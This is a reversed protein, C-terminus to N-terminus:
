GRTKERENNRIGTQRKKCCTKSRWGKRMETSCIKGNNGTVIGLAWTAQNKLTVYPLSYVHRIVEHESESLNFNIIHKPMMLFDTQSRHIVRKGYVECAIEDLTAPSKEMVFAKAKTLLGKFPKGYDVLRRIRYNLLQARADEFGGINFFSEPLLLGMEGQNKLLLLCFEFFLACTDSSTTHLMQSYRDREQKPLKKGWPPNTYIYDFREKVERASALFDACVVHECDQGSLERLRKRAIAVANSDTDFGYINQPLFGRQLAAVLFNGSGCCPDLFLKDSVNDVDKMMDCVIDSPTYYIGEKNKFSESMSAEYKEALTEGSSGMGDVENRVMLTLAEHDHLDKQSKNARSKLKSGLHNKIFSEVEEKSLHGHTATLEGESIWNRVTAESVSLLRATEKLSLLTPSTSEFLSLQPNQM